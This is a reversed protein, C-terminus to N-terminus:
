KEERHGNLVESVRGGDVGFHSAIERQLALPHDAAYQIIRGKMEGTISPAKAKQKRGYYKRKTEDALSHLEIAYDHLGRRELADAIEYMRERIEPLTKAM